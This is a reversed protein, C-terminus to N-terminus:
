RVVKKLDEFFTPYSVAASASSKIVSEGRAFAAAVAAAMAIRHDGRADYEAGKINDTGEIILGDQTEAFRAGCKSIEEAITKIRNTEKYKLEEAGSIVTVGEAYAAAAALVPIEDILRPIIEGGIVTGKLRSAKVYIDAVPECDGAGRKNILEIHGGMNLLVDIIGTRTPNVGVNKILLEGGKSILALVIFFAASSIDGPVDIDRAKLISKKVTASNQDTSIEAGFAKLMIETHDRSKVKERIVTSGDAYLGALLLCSKVQASAVPMQYDIGKLKGGKIKLPCCGNNSTIQAGMNQLPAIIRNMPRKKISEDGDIVSEFNQGALIGSLLRTTTGSNATYLLSGSEKLGYLGKGKVTVTLGSNQIEIGLKKFCNVTAICDEGNLFNTIRTEGEALAGLMVARHSISKDGPPTIEGKVTKAPKIITNM